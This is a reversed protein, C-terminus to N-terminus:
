SGNKQQLLSAEEDHAQRRTVSFVDTVPILSEGNPDLIRCFRFISDDQTHEAVFTGKAQRRALLKEGVMQNLAKRVIGQSIGLENGLAIESPLFESPKLSGIEM